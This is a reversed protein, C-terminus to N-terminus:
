YFYVSLENCNLYSEQYFLILMNRIPQLKEINIKSKEEWDM